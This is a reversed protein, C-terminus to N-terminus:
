KFLVLVLCLIIVNSHNTKTKNKNNNLNCKENRSIFKTYITNQKFVYITYKTRFSFTKEEMQQIFKNLKM